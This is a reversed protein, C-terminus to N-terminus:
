KAGGDIWSVILALDTDSLPGGSLPMQDGGIGPNGTVKWYMYSNASDGPAVRAVLPREASVVGILNTSSSSVSSMDLGFPATAGVHCGSKACRPTLVQSQVQLLTVTPAASGTVPDGAGGCSVAAAMLSVVLPRVPNVV